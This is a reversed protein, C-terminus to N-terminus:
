KEEPDDILRDRIVIKRVPKNETLKLTIIRIRRCDDNLLKSDSLNYITLECFYSKDIRVEIPNDIISNDIYYIHISPLNLFLSDFEHGYSDEILDKISKSPWPIEKTILFIKGTDSNRSVAISDISQPLIFTNEFSIQESNLYYKAPRSQGLLNLPLLFIALLIFQRM